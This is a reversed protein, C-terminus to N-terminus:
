VPRSCPDGQYEISLLAMDDQLGEGTHFRLADLM